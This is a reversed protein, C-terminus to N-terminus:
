CRSLMRQIYVDWRTDKLYRYRTLVNHAQSTEGLFYCSKAYQYLIEPDRPNEKWLKELIKKMKYYDRQLFCIIAERLQDDCDKSRQPEFENAPLGSIVSILNYVFVSILLLLSFFLFSYSILGELVFSSGFLTLGLFLLSLILFGRFYYKKYFFYFGCIVLSFFRVLMDKIMKSKLEGKSLNFM